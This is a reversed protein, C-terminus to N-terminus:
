KLCYVCWQVQGVVSITHLKFVVFLVKCVSEKHEWEKTEWPQQM